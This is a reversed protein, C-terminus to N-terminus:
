KNLKFLSDIEKNSLEGIWKEGSKVTLDALEKKSDILANIKEEFTNQTIFRHVFVNRRQGIRFARDTAQAEVAPNWWLDYHIVHNAATLNLGTGGAKISLIMVKKHPQEQFYKVMGKRKTMSAGGHLWLPTIGFRQFIQAEMIDGMSKFQTFILVKEGGDIISELTDMLLESKGSLVPAIAENKLWQAPHNCVQKLALILQLVLGQKKFLGQHDSVDTSKILEMGEDVIKQYLAAQEITLPAYRDQVIKDPLDSIISKDTKMRRLLFPGTVKKFRDLVKENGDKAIPIDYEKKFFTKNGLLGKNAYDMVSWYDMLRNEVPTGSMAICHKAKLSKIAKTQGANPNKINQSEDIISIAWKYKKLIEIDSRVIGYTTLIVEKSAIEKLSRLPGYYAFTEIDPAFKVMEAEWNPILSTPVIVIAKQKQLVQHEKLYCLLSIVQVTKGLGMDDAIISGVGIRMNKVLWSYGRLQYPRLEADLIKPPDITKYNTLENILNKAEENIEIPAGNLENSLVIRLIDINSYKNPSSLLKELKMMDHDDIFVYTGKYKVLRGASKVIKKFESYSVIEEGMSIRWDFNLLGALGLVGSSQSGSSSVKISPRPKILKKLSKPLVVKIGLLSMIPNIDFLFKPLSIEDFIMPKVGRSNIYAGVESMYISLLDLDKFFDFLENKHKTTKVFDSFKQPAALASRKNGVMIEIGFQCLAIENIKLVPYFDGLDFYFLQLWHAISSAVSSESLGDFVTKQNSFFLKELYESREDIDSFARVLHTITFGLSLYVSAVKQGNNFLFGYKPEINEVINTLVDDLLAPMWMVIFHDEKEVFKPTILCKGICHLALRLLISFHSFCPHCNELQENELSWIGSLNFGDEVEIIEGNWTISKKNDGSIVEPFEELVDSLILKDALIKEAKKGIKSLHSIYKSKFNGFTFFAPDDELLGCIEELRNRLRSLDITKEVKSENNIIALNENLFDDYITVSRNHIAYVDIDRKLLLSRLDSGRFDFLVFPNNDIDSCVKYVVAAIYKCPVAWDPCSCKMEMDKSERPFLYLGTRNAVELLLPDMKGNLLRSVITPYEIIKDLLSEMKKKGFQEMKLEVKYPSPRSGKVFSIIKGDALKIESVKGTRAYSLGRPIRNSYDINTLAKLWQEGWWTKGFTERAM